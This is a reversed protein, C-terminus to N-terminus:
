GVLLPPFNTLTVAIFSIFLWRDGGNRVDTGGGRACVGIVSGVVPSQCSGLFPSRFLLRVSEVIVVTV